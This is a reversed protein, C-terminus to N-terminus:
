LAAEEEAVEVDGEALLVEGHGPKMRLLKVGDIIVFPRTLAHVKNRPPGSTKPAYPTGVGMLSRMIVGASTATARARSALAVAAVAAGNPKPLGSKTSSEPARAPPSGTRAVSGIWWVMTYELWSPVVCM